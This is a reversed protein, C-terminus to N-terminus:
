GPLPPQMAHGRRGPLAATLRHIRREGDICTERKAQHEVLRQTLGLAHQSRDGLHELDIDGNRIMCGQATAAAAHGDQGFPDSAILREMKEDIASTQLHITLAFPKVLLAAQPRAAPPSLQM